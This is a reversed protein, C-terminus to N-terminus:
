RATTISIGGTTVNVSTLHQGARVVASNVQEVFDADERRSGTRNPVRLNATAKPGSRDM